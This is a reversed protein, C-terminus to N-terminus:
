VEREWIVEYVDPQEFRNNYKDETKWARLVIEDFGNEEAVEIASQFDYCIENDWNHFKSILFDVCRFKKSDITKGNQTFFVM